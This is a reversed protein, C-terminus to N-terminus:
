SGAECGAPAYSLKWAPAGAEEADCSWNGNVDRTWTVTAGTIAAAANDGLTAQLEYAGTNETITFTGVLNSKADDYGIYFNDPGEDTTTTTPTGGRLLIEEVATRTASVEGVVRSVQSRATYDQYQPIAIAALIGIIAVVIMLEILTFGKQAHNMQINKM